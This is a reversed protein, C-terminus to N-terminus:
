RSSILMRSRLQDAAPGALAEGPATVIADIMKKSTPNQIQIVDGIAADKTAMGTMSLALGNTAWTVKVSEARKVVTPSTLESRHVVAGERIPFRVVKGIISRADGPVDGSIAPVKAFTLDDAQVVDGANMAHSYVLADVAKGAPAAASVPQVAEATPASGDVGAAVIIRRIGRPNDWTMGNRAAVGQVTAADLVTTAANRYGLVVQSQAPTAGDFVDGVTVRGDGDTPAAKLVLVGDALALSPLLLALLAIGGFAKAKPLRSQAGSGTRPAKAANSRFM